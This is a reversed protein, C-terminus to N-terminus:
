PAQKDTGIVSSVDSKSKGAKIAEIASRMRAAHQPDHPNSTL